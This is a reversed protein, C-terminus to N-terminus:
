ISFYQIVLNSIYEIENETIHPFMPLALLTESLDEAVPFYNGSEFKYIDQKHCPLPYYVGSSVKNEALFERLGERDNNNLCKIQYLHYVHTADDAVFPTKIAGFDELYKDYLFAAAQRNHNWKQIRSMMRKLFMANITDLRSNYGRYAFETHSGAMRGMNGLSRVKEAIDKDDTVVAGGQALGGLNKTPYFSFCGTLGFSGIRQSKWTSGV